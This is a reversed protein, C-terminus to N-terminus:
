GNQFNLKYFSSFQFKKGRKSINRKLLHLNQRPKDNRQMEELWFNETM